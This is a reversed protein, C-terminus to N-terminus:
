ESAEAEEDAAEAEEVRKEARTFFRQLDPPFLEKEVFWKQSWDPASRRMYRDPKWRALLLCDGAETQVLRQKFTLGDCTADPLDLTQYISLAKRGVYIVATNDIDSLRYSEIERKVVNEKRTMRRASFRQMPEPSDDAAAKRPPYPSRM